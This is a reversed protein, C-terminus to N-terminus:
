SGGITVTPFGEADPQRARNVIAIAAGVVVLAYDKWDFVGDVIDRAVFGLLTAVAALVVNKFTTTNWFKM